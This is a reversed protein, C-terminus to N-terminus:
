GLKGGVRRGPVRRHGERARLDARAGHQGGARGRSLCLERRADDSRPSVRRGVAGTTQGVGVTAPVPRGAHEHTPQDPARFFLFAYNASDHITVDRLTVRRCHGLLITHPGRMKEEGQPDFVQNGDIVGQGTFAVDRLNEGVLLGRHWRSQPLKPTGEAALFGACADLDKVGKLRAGEPLHLEVGSRLRVTGSLCTGIPFLVRGGGAAGCADIAAQIATTDPIADDAAAGFKTVLFDAALVPATAAVLVLSVCIRLMTPVRAALRM